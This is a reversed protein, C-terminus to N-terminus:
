RGGGTRGRDPLASPEWDGYRLALEDAARGRSHEGDPLAAEIEAVSLAPLLAEATPVADLFARAADATLGGALLATQTEVSAREIQSLAAKKLADVRARALSRLELRRPGSANVGRGRWGLERSPRFKEAVGLDRCRAAIEADAVAIADRAARTVDAWLRAEDDFTDSLCAKLEARIAASRERAASKAVKERRRVLASLDDRERRTMGAHATSM